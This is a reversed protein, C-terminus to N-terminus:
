NYMRTGIVESVNKFCAETDGSRCSPRKYLWEAFGKQDNVIGTSPMTYFQRDSANNEFIDGVSRYLKQNFKSSVDEKIAENEINCAPYDYNPDDTLINRNMFPNNSTPKRCASGNSKSRALNKKTYAEKRTERKKTEVSYMAFSILLVIVLIYFVKYNNKFLVLILTLYITFRVISNIQEVYSMDSTPFFQLFNDKTILGSLDTFWIESM